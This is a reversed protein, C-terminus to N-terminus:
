GGWLASRPGGARAPRRPLRGEVSEGRGGAGSAGRGLAQRLRPHGQDRGKRGQLSPRSTLPRHPCPAGLPLSWFPRSQPSAEPPLSVTEGPWASWGPSTPATPNEPGKPARVAAPGVADASIGGVLSALVLKLNSHTQCTHGPPRHDQGASHGSEGLIHGAVGAGEVGPM